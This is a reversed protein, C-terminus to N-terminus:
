STPRVVLLRFGVSLDRFGPHYLFRSVARAGGLVDFWSGGRLVRNESARLDEDEAKDAPKKYSSLCWEWVNGSMEEVGYSSAGNPFIGVASTQSIGTGHTNGKAPDYDGEYPYLRGDTGRAAKEWEFETPLRVAWETVKDLDYTTGWQWSLWRCFAMAQYWNVNDRPHNAFKFYPEVIRREEEDDTLGGFWRPDAYGSPDDLFTKFQAQTVPFRSIHFDPLTPKRLKAADESKDGYQFKGGPIKVWAIGSLGDVVGVGPRDDWGTLGLARGVAARAQPKENEFDTLRKIWESRLRERTVDALTHGVGSNMICQAAVEPNAEAIWEVAKTCDNNHLGVFLVAAVEWNTREWWQAQPWIQSAKWANDELQIQMHWAAFYEQLLQHTFRIQDDTNLLGANGALSLMHQANAGLLSLVENKPLVTLAGGIDVNNKIARQSQMTFAVLALANELPKVEAPQIRKGEIERGLRIQVFRRFLNGRNQPLDDNGNAYVGALMTLMFPNSALGLMSSKEDRLKIWREWTRNNEESWGWRVGDPLQSKLWFIQEANPWRDGFKDLFEQQLEQATAPALKWFMAKGREPSDLYKCAFDRIRLPDLPSINICNFGLDRPYDDKRCSVVAMLEPNQEFFKRVQEHKDQWQDRPLENLGDLLLAARETSLLKDLYAGLGKLRSVIFDPLSQDAQTWYRLEVLLPIPAQDNQRATEVMELILKWIATTKGGGPEGLLAARPVQRIAEVADDFERNKPLWNGDKDLPLVEAKHCWDEYFRFQQESKSGMAVYRERLREAKLNKLYALELERQPDSEPNLEARIKQLSGVLKALAVGYDDSDLISVWQYDNLVFFGPEKRVGERLLPVIKIEHTIAWNIEKKVWHSGLSKRSAVVVVAFSDTIAQGLAETWVDGGRINNTDLWCAIGAQTLDDVLSNAFKAEEFAYSVFVKPRKERPTAITQLPLNRSM